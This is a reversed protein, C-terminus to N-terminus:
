EDNTSSKMFGSMGTSLDHGDGRQESRLGAKNKEVVQNVAPEM